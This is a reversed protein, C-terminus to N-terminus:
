EERLRAKKEKSIIKEEGSESGENWREKVLFNHPFTLAIYPEIGRKACADL